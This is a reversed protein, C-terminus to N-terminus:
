TKTREGPTSGPDLAQFADIMVALGHVSKLQDIDLQSPKSILLKTKLQGCGRDTM